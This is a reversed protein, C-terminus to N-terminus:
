TNVTIWSITAEDWSVYQDTDPRAVPPQWLCTETDLIWSAYPRPPIFADLNPDYTYGSGAYNKRFPTGGNNHQGGYTNYSTRKCPLGKIQSYYQEWDVDGETEDRGTIVEVVTNNDDLFAYHGM